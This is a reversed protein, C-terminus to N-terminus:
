LWDGIDARPLPRELKAYEAEAAALLHPMGVAEGAGAALYAANVAINRIHGGTLNLRALRDLALARRPMSHPFVRAWIERRADADPVPFHVVFQLRRLFAADIAQKLNTTLISLGRYTEIRQLLYAVEINAYRDHSDRVEGRAGFLADAEDFLLIAGGSEAADFVRRLNKETEGIYKSILAALDIRYLDLNLENALVEAALTKGTGSGGSFLAGIGLGRSSKHAFGWEELVKHRQRVHLALTRLTGLPGAPLVLDDWGARVECRQALADLEGRSEIRCAHWLEAAFDDGPRTRSRAIARRLAEPRLRFQSTIADLEGNLRQALPGLEDRWTEGSDTNRSADDIRWQARELRPLTGAYFAVSQLSNLFPVVRAAVDSPEFDEGDVLLASNVLLAEREWLRALAECEAASTPIARADLRHLGLGLAHCAAAAIRVSDRRPSRPLEVIPCADLNQAGAWLGAIERSLDSETLPAVRVPRILGEIRPDLFSNGLLYHLVREDIALRATALPAGPTVDVFRWRRLTGAPPLSRIHGGDILDIANLFTLGRPTPDGQLQAVASAAPADWELAACTAVVNREFDSLGFRTALAALRPPPVPAFRLGAGALRGALCVRLAAIVAEFGEPLGAVFASHASM